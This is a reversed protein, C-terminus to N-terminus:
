LPRVEIALLIKAKVGEDLNRWDVRYVQHGVYREQPPPPGQSSTLHAQAQFHSRRPGPGTAGLVPNVVLYVLALVSILKGVMRRVSHYASPM